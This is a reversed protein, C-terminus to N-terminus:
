TPPYVSFLIRNAGVVIHRRVINNVDSFISNRLTQYSTFSDAQFISAYMSLMFSDTNSLGEKYFPINASM